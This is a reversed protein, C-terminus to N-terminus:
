VAYKKLDDLSNGFMAAIKAEEANLAKGSDPPTKGDLKSPDAVVPAAAIFKKFEALGNEQRCMATYYERTAPTIKGAKLAADIEATIATLLQDAEIDTLRQEANAARTLASDYDARPVFKELSPTNARNLATSLDGQLKELANLALEESADEALGLKKLLNKMPNDGTTPARRATGTRQQEHNLASLFLNPKNVLAVSSLRRVRGTAKEYDFVPSIYRYERNTVAQEGRPTFSIKGWLAGDRIEYAVFWGAAPAEDGRPAKLETAHEYDLPIDAERQMLDDIISQPQDNVWRRGDRGTIQGAPILEIWDPVASGDSGSIEFNLAHRLFM